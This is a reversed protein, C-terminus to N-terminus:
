TTSKKTKRNQKARQETTFEMAANENVCLSINHSLDFFMNLTGEKDSTYTMANEYGIGLNQAEDIADQNAGLFVFQWNHKTKLKHILDFIQDKNFNNSSNEHGDTIIVVIVKADVTKPNILASSKNLTFGIADLLATTGRPVFTKNNLLPVEKIPMETYITDIDHDFQVLTLLCDPNNKQQETVFNNFGGITDNKLVDMSGSRDLIIFIQNKNSM